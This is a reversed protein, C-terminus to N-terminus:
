NELKDLHKLKVKFPSSSTQPQNITETESIGILKGNEDYKYEVSKSYTPVSCGAMIMSGLCFCIVMIKKLM